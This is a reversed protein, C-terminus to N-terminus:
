EVLSVKSLPSTFPNSKNYSTIEFDSNIYIQYAIVGSAQVGGGEDQMMVQSTPAYIMGSLDENGSGFQLQLCPVGKNGAPSKCQPAAPTVATPAQIIGIGNYTYENTGIPNVPATIQLQANGQSFQGAYEELTGNVVINGSLTVGNEFLYLGDGGAAGLTVGTLTSGAPFCTLNSVSGDPATYKTSPITTTSIVSTTGVTNSGNCASLPILNMNALPNQVPAVGTTLTPGHRQKCGGTTDPTGVIHVYPAVLTANGQDCYAKASSNIQWGCGSSEVKANGKIVFTDDDSSDLAYNCAPSAAIGAVARAAVSVLNHNFMGLFITPNPQRIVVEVYTPGTHWGDTPNTNVAVQNITDTIGNVGAAARAATAANSGDEEALAGAIAAADAATQVRHRANFLIGIDLALALFGCLLTMCLASIVLAQGEENRLTSM